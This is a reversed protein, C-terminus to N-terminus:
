EECRPCKMIIALTICDIHEYCWTIIEVMQTKHHIVLSYKWKNKPTKIIYTWLLLRILIEHSVSVTVHPHPAPHKLTWIKSASTQSNM